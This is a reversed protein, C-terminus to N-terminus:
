PTGIFIGAANFKEVKTQLELLELQQACELYIAEPLKVRLNHIAQLRRELSEGYGTDQRGMHAWSNELRQSHSAFILMDEALDGYQQRIAREWSEAEDYAAPNLAYDAATALAIKSLEPKEMPNVFFCPMEASTVARDMKDIPGLALKGQMYDNVPYNWWIGVPRQYVQNLGTVTDHSLGDPCVELGTSLVQIDQDLKTAMASTYPKATGQSVMDLLFYETPVLLLPQCDQKAHIFNENIYNAFAVQGEADKTPIDDFFLAFQRVGMDYMAQLKEVMAQRDAESAFDIDNGPSMAFIFQVGQAQSHNVLEQLEALKDEPYPQRWQHRHYPDDKPAYIYANMQHEAMFTMMDMRQLHTWPTGYFGEVIGRMPIAVSKEAGLATSGLNVLLLLVVALASFFKKM